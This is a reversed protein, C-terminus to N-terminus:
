ADDVVTSEFLGAQGEYAAGRRRLEDEIESRAEFREADEEDDGTPELSALQARLDEEDLDEYPRPEAALAEAGEARRAREENEAEIGEVIALVERDERGGLLMQLQPVTYANPELANAREVAAVIRQALEPDEPLPLIDVTGEADFGEAAVELNLDVEGEALLGSLPTAQRLAQREAAALIMVSRQSGWPSYKLKNESTPLYESLPAFYFGMVEGGTVHGSGGVIQRRLPRRVECWAGVIEGRKEASGQYEHHVARLGDAARIVRFVDNEHVVDGDIVLGQNRAIKRLGDRGVMILLRGAGGDKGPSKVCWCERAFPDLDYRSALQLFFHLEAGSADKAVTKKILEVQEPDWDRWAPPTAQSRKELDQTM